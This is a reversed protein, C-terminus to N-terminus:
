LAGHQGFQESVADQSTSPLTCQYGLPMCVSVDGAYHLTKCRSYLVHQTYKVKASSKGCANVADKSCAGVGLQAGLSQALCPSLITSTALRMHRGTVNQHNSGLAEFRHQTGAHRNLSGRPFRHQHGSDVCIAFSCQIVQLLIHTTTSNLRHLLPGSDAPTPFEPLIM